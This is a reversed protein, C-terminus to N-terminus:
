IICMGFNRKLIKIVDNKTFVSSTTYTYDTLVKFRIDRDWLQFCVAMVCADIDCGIIDIEDDKEFFCDIDKIGYGNKLIIVINDNLVFELDTETCFNCGDWNLQECYNSNTKGNITQSFITAYSMDYNHANEQIFSLCKEYLGENDKFQKQVDIILLKRM